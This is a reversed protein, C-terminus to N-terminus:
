PSHHEDQILQYAEWLLAQIKVLKQTVVGRLAVIDNDYIYNNIEECLWMVYQYMLDLTIEFQGYITDSLSDSTRDDDADILFIKIEYSGPMWIWDNPFSLDFATEYSPSSGTYKLNGDLYVSINSLGEDEDPDGLLQLDDIATFSINVWLHDVTTMLNEIYPKYIDDDVIEKSVDLTASLTDDPRDTDNDTADFTFDHTGLSNPVPYTGSPDVLLGSADSATVILTGNNGDTGDGTYIYSIEPESIDDDVVEFEETTTYEMRDEGWGDNDNDWVHIDVSYTDPEKPNPIRIRFEGELSDFYPAYKTGEFMAYVSSFGSPDAASIIIELHADCDKIM